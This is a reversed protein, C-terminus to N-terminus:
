SLVERAPPPPLPFSLPGRGRMNKSSSSPPSFTGICMQKGARFGRQCISQLSKHPLIVQRKREGDRLRLFLILRPSLAESSESEDATSPPSSITHPFMGAEIGEPSLTALYHQYKKRLFHVCLTRWREVM